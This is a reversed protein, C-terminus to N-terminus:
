FSLNVTVYIKKNYIKEKRKFTVNIQNIINKNNIKLNLLNNDM